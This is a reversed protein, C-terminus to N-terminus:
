AQKSLIELREVRTTGSYIGEQHRPQPLNLAYELCPGKVICNQCIARAAAIAILDDEDPFMLDPDMDDAGCAGHVGLYLDIDSRQSDGPPVLAGGGEVVTFKPREPGSSTMPM